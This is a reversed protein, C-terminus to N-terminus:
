LVVRLLDIWCVVDDGDYCIHGFYRLKVWVGSLCLRPLTESVIWSSSLYIVGCRSIGLIAHHLDRINRRRFFIGLMVVLPIAVAIVQESREVTLVVLYLEKLQYFLILFPAVVVAFSLRIIVPVVQFPITNSKYPYRLQATVFNTAGVHRQFPHILFTLLWLVFIIVILLWDNLHYKFLGGLKLDLAPPTEMLDGPEQEEPKQVVISISNSLWKKFSGSAGLM